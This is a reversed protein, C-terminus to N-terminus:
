QHKTRIALVCVLTTDAPWAAETASAAKALQYEPHKAAGGQSIIEDVQADAPEDTSENPRAFVWAAVVNPTPEFLEGLSQLNVAGITTTGAAFSITGVNRVEERTIFADLDNTKGLEITADGEWAAYVHYVVDTVKARGRLFIAADYGSPLANAGLVQVLKFQGGCAAGVALARSRLLTTDLPMLGVVAAANPPGDAIADWSQKLASAPTVLTATAEAFEADGIKDGLQLAAAINGAQVLTSVQKAREPDVFLVLEKATAV